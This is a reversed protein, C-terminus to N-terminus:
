AFPRALLRAIEPEARIATPEMYPRPLIRRGRAVGGWELIRAYSKVPDVKGSPPQGLGPGVESGVVHGDWAPRSFGVANRLNGFLVAPPEGPASAVHAPGRRSVRYTRGHRTGSLTVKIQGAFYAGAQVVAVEALPRLAAFEEEGLTDLGEWKGGPIEFM